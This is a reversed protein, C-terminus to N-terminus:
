REHNDWFFFLKMWYSLSMATFCLIFYFILFFVLFFFAELLEEEDFDLFLSLLSFDLDREPDLLLDLAELDFSDLDLLAALSSFLDFDPFLELDALSEM